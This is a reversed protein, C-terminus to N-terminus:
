LCAIEVMMGPAGILRYSPSSQNGIQRFLIVVIEREQLPPIRTVARCRGAGRPGIDQMGIDAVRFGAAQGFMPQGLRDAKGGGQRLKVKGAALHHAQRADM